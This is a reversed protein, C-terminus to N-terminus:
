RRKRNIPNRGHWRPLGSDPPIEYTVWSELPIPGPFASRFMKDAEHRGVNPHRPLYATVAEHIAAEYVEEPTLTHGHIAQQGRTYAGLTGGDQIYGRLTTQASAITDAWGGDRLGPLAAWKIIHVALRIYQSKVAHRNENLHAEVLALIHQSDYESLLRTTKLTEVLRESHAIEDHTDM